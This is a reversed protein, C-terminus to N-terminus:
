NNFKESFSLSTDLFVGISLVRTQIEVFSYKRETSLLKQAELSNHTAGNLKSYILFLYAPLCIYNIAVTSRIIKIPKIALVRIFEVCVWM